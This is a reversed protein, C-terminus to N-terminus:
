DLLFAFRSIGAREIFAARAPNVSLYAFALLRYCFSGIEAVRCPPEQSLDPAKKGYAIVILL